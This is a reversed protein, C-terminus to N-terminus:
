FVFLCVLRCSVEVVVRGMYEYEYTTIERKYDLGVERLLIKLKKMEQQAETEEDQQVIEGELQFKKEEQKEQNEEQQVQREEQQVQRGEPEKIQEEVTVNFMDDDDPVSGWGSSSDSKSSGLTVVDMEREYGSM